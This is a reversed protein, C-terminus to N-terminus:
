MSTTARWRSSSTRRGRRRRRPRRASSHTIPFLAELLDSRDVSLRVRSSPPIPWVELIVRSAARTRRVFPSLSSAVGVCVFHLGPERSAHTDGRASSAPGGRRDDTGRPVVDAGAVESESVSPQMETFPPRVRGKRGRRRRRRRGRRGRTERRTKRRRGRGGGGGTKPFGGRRGRRRRGKRRPTGRGGANEEDEAADEAADAADAEDDETGRGGGGRLPAARWRGRTTSRAKPPRRTRRAARARASSPRPRRRPPERRPPRPRADRRRCRSNRRRFRTPTPTELLSALDGGVPPAEAARVRLSTRGM